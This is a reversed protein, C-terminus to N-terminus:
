EKVVRTDCIHDHLGRKEEDFAVMIFGICLILGSLAQAWVRGFARAYSVKGGDARIVKLGCAMKGPTAGYAGVFYTAYGINVIFSLVGTIAVGTGGEMLMGLFGILYDAVWLIVNDLLLAGARIWFGGYVRRPSAIPLDGRLRELFVPKCGECVSYEGLRTVGGEPIENNCIDCRVMMVIGSHTKRAAPPEYSLSVM